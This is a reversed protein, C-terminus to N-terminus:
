NAYSASPTLNLLDQNNLKEVIKYSSEYYPKDEFESKYLWEFQKSEFYFVKYCKETVEDVRMKFLYKSSALRNEVIYIGGLELKNKM